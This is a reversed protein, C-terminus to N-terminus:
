RRPTQGPLPLTNATRNTASPQYVGPKPAPVGTKPRNMISVVIAYVIIGVVLIGVGILLKRWDIKSFQLTLWDVITRPQDTLPPPESFKETKGLEQNLAAIVGQSDLKLIKCYSRVFGRIYVPASFVDYNGEEIARIHDARVNTIEAIQQITLSRAERASRLQEAVSAM